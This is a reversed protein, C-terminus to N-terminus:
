QDNGWVPLKEDRGRRLYLSDKLRLDSMLMNLRLENEKVKYM